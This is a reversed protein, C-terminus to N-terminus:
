WVPIPLLHDMIRMQIDVSDATVKDIPNIQNKDMMFGIGVIVAKRVDPNNDKATDIFAQASNRNGLLGLTHLAYIRLTADKATTHKLLQEIIWDRSALKMMAIALNTYAVISINKDIRAWMKQLVELEQKELDSLESIPEKKKQDNIMALSLILYPTLTTDYQQRDDRLINLTAEVAGKDKLLGLGIAAAARLLPRTKRSDASLISRLDSKAKEHGTLGMAILILGDAEPSKNKQLMESITEYAQTDKIQALAICAFGRIVPAKDQLFKLINDRVESTGAMGFAMIVASRIDNEKENEYAFRKLEALAETSGIRGLGLAAHARIMGQAKKGNDGNLIKGLIPAASADKLNGLSICCSSKVERDEKEASLIDRLTSSIEPNNAVYSLALAAFSRQLPSNKKEDLVDKIIAIASADSTLGLGLLVNNRVFDRKETEHAKKLIEVAKPSSVAPNQSDQVKGLAIAARFALYPDKDGVSDALTNILADYIPSVAYSKTGGQDIIDTWQIQERFTLYKDRNRSWWVEWPDAVSALSQISQILPQIGVGLPPRQAAPIGTGSGGRSTSGGGGTSPCAGTLYKDSVLILSSLCLVTLILYKRM